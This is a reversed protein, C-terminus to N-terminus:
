ETDRRTIRTETNLKKGGNGKRAPKGNMVRYAEVVEAPLGDIILKGQHLLIARTCVSEIEKESHTVLLITKGSTILEHFKEYSKEKFAADGVALAEDIVLIDAEVYISIAFSLRSRMGRSYIRIPQDIFDGIEAFAIAEEIIKASKNKDFNQLLTFYYLNERGTLEQHFGTGLEFLPILKGEVEVTGTTPSTIGAIIRLLTSKGSGNRGIIGVIEGKTVEFSVNEVATFRKYKKKLFPILASFIMGSKANYLHYQKSINQLRIQINEKM